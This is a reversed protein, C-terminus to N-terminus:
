DEMQALFAEKKEQVRQKREEYSLRTQRHKGFKAKMEEKNVTSPKKDPNARILQHAEKYLAEIGDATLGKAIYNHFHAKYKEPNESELLNMYASVHGGYIYKRLVESDLEGKEADFGVFRKENHPINLGGDVAGKLAAFVRSETSTRALGVDL